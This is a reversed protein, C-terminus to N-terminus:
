EQRSFGIEWQQPIHWLVGSRCMAQESSPQSSCNATDRFSKRTRSLGLSWTPFAAAGIGEKRWRRWASPSHCRWGCSPLQPTSLVVAAVPQKECAMHKMNKILLRVEELWVVKEGSNASTKTPYWHVLFEWLQISVGKEHMHGCYGQNWRSFNIQTWLLMVPIHLVALITDKLDNSGWVRVQWPVWFVKSSYSQARYQAQFVNGFLLVEFISWCLM